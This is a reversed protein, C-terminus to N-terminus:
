CFGGSACSRRRVSPRRGRCSRRRPRTSPTRCPKSPRFRHDVVYDLTVHLLYDPGPQVSAPDLAVAQELKEDFRFSGDQHGTVTVLFNEPASVAAEKWRRCKVTEITTVTSSTSTKRISFHEIKLVQNEDAIRLRLPAASSPCDPLEQISPPTCAPTAVKLREFTTSACAHAEAATAVVHFFRQESM